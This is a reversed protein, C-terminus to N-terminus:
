RDATWSGDADRRLTHEGIVVETATGHDVFEVLEAAIWVVPADDDFSLGVAVDVDSTGVVETTYALSPTTHGHVTGIRGALGLSITLPTEIVRARDLFSVGSSSTLLDTTAVPEGPGIVPALSDFTGGKMERWVRYGDLEEHELTAVGAFRPKAAGFTARSLPYHGISVPWIAALDGMADERSVPATSWVNPPISSPREPWREAPIRLHIRM